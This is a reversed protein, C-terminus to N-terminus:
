EVKVMCYVALGPQDLDGEVGLLRLPESRTRKEMDVLFLTLKSQGVLFLEGVLRVAGRLWGHRSAVPHGTTTGLPVSCDVASVVEGTACCLKVWQGAQTWGVYHHGDFIMGDHVRGDIPDPNRGPPAPLHFCRRTVNWFKSEGVAPDLDPLNVILDGDPTLTVHNIHYRDWSPGPIRYDRDGHFGELQHAEMHRALEPVDGAWWTSVQQLDADFGLLGDAATATVYLVGDRVVLSHIDDLRRESRSSRVGQLGGDLLFIETANCAAIGGAFLAVGRASRRGPKHPSEPLDIQRELRFVGEEIDVTGLLLSGGVEEGRGDTRRGSRLSTTLLVRHSPRM